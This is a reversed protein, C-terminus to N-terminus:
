INLIKNLSKKNLLDKHIIYFEYANADCYKIMEEIKYKNLKYDVLALPKVEFIIKRDNIKIFFDIRLIKRKDKYNYELCFEELTYYEVEKTKELYDCIYKEWSSRYYFNTKMKNSYFNGSIHNKYPCKNIIKSQALSMNYCINNREENNLNQWYKKRRKSSEKILEPNNKCAKKFPNNEGSIHPRKGRMKEKTENTHKYNLTTFKENKIVADHSCKVSCYQAFGSNLTKYSVINKCGELKCIHPKNDDMLYRYIKEPITEGIYQSIINKDAFENWYKKFHSNLVLKDKRYHLIRNELLYNIREVLM